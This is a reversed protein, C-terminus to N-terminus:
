VKALKEMQSETLSLQLFHHINESPERPPTPARANMSKSVPIFNGRIAKSDHAYM